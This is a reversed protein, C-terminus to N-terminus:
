IPYREGQRAVDDDDVRAHAGLAADEEGLLCASVGVLAKGTVSPSM